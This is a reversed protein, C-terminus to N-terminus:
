DGIKKGENLDKKNKRFGAFGIIGSNLLLIARMRVFYSIRWCGANKKPIM